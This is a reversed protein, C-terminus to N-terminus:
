IAIPSTETRMGPRTSWHKTLSDALAAPYSMLLLQISPISWKNKHKARTAHAADSSDGDLSHIQIM